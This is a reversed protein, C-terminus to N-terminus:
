SWFTYAISLYTQSFSIIILIVFFIMRYQLFLILNFSLNHILIVILLIFTMKSMSFSTGKTILLLIFIIIFLLNIFNIFKFFFDGFCLLRILLNLNFLISLIISFKFLYVSIYCTTIQDWLCWLNQLRVQYFLYM